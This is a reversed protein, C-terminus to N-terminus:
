VTGTQGLSRPDGSERPQQASLRLREDSVGLPIATGRIVVLNKPFSSVRWLVPMHTNFPSENPLFWNTM